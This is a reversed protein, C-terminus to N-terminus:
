DVAWDKIYVVLWILCFYALKRHYFLMEMIFLLLLTLIHGTFKICLINSASYNLQINHPQFSNSSLTTELKECDILIMKVTFLGIVTWYRRKFSGISKLVCDIHDSM